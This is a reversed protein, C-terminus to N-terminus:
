LRTSPSHAASNEEWGHVTVDIPIGARVSETVVCFDEFLSLCRAAPAQEPAPIKPEIDVGIDVHIAGVRLRGRDNRHIETRVLTRLGELPVRAKGACFLLSASLCNGVAAALIRTANPATDAGLPAPEDLKLEAFQAKDFVVRFEYGSTQELEITFENVLTAGSNQSAEGVTTM